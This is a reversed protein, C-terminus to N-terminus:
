LFHLFLPLFHFFLVLLALFHALVEEGTRSTKAKRGEQDAVTPLLLLPSTPPLSFAGPSVTIPSSPSLPSSVPTGPIPTNSQSSYGSSPSALRQLGSPAVTQPNLTFRLGEEESGPSGPALVHAVPPSPPPSDASTATQLNLPEFTTVTGCSQGSQRRGTHTRPVWPDYCSGPSSTATGQSTDELSQPRGQQRPSSLSRSSKSRNPRPRRLSDDRLPPPPPLKSKRLSISHTISRSNSSSTSSRRRECNLESCAPSSRGSTLLPDLSWGGGSVCRTEQSVDAWEDGTPGSLVSSSPSLPQYSWRNGRYSGGDCSSQPDGQEDLAQYSFESNTISSSSLYHSSSPSVHPTENLPEASPYSWEPALPRSPTSPLSSSGPSSPSLPVVRAPPDFPLLPQQDSSFGQLDQSQSCSSSASLTRCSASNCSAESSLSSNTPLSPLPGPSPSSTLSAMLSSMGAGRPARIRRVASDKSIDEAEEEQEPASGCSSASPSFQGPLDSSALSSDPTSSVDDPIGTVTKRRSLSRPRHSLSDCSSVTRRFSAQRDFSEGTINIAVIDAPIADAQRRMKEEPTPLRSTAEMEFYATPESDPPFVDWRSTVPNLVLPTLPRTNNLILREDEESSTSSMKRSKDKWGRRRSGESQDLGASSLPSAPSQQHRHSSAHESYGHQTLRNWVRLDDVSGSRRKGPIFVLGQQPKQTTYHVSWKSDRDGPGILDGTFSLSSQQVWLVKQLELSVQTKSFTKKEKPLSWAETLLDWHKLPEKNPVHLGEAPEMSGQKAGSLFLNRSFTGQSPEKLLNRSAQPRQPPEVDRTKNLFRLVSKIAAGILVM